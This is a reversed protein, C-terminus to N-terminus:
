ILTSDSEAQREVDISFMGESFGLVPRMVASETIAASRLSVVGSRVPVYADLSAAQRAREHALQPGRHSPMLVLNCYVAASGAELTLM